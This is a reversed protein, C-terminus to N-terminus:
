LIEVFKLERYIIKYEIVNRLDECSLTYLTVCFFTLRNVLGKTWM